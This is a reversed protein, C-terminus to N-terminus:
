LAVEDATSSDDRQAEERRVQLWKSHLYLISGTQESHHLVNAAGVGQFTHLSIYLGTDTYPSDFSYMCEENFVRDHATPVHLKEAVALLLQHNKM